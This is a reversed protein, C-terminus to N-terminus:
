RVPHITIETRPSAKDVSYPEFSPIVHRADDDPLMQTKVLCDMVNQVINLYDFRGNGKRYIKFNIRVPWGGLTVCSVIESQWSNRFSHNSLLLLILKREDAKAVKSKVVKKIIKGGETKRIVPERSNKSSILEGDIRFLVPERM